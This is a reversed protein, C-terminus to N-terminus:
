DTAGADLSFPSTYPCTVYRGYVQALFAATDPEASDICETPTDSGSMVAVLQRSATDFYCASTWGLSPGHPLYVFLNSGCGSLTPQSADRGTQVAAIAQDLDAPCGGRNSSLPLIPLCYDVMTFRRGDPITFTNRDKGADYSGTGTDIADPTAGVDLFDAVDQSTALDVPVESAALADRADPSSKADPVDSPTSGDDSSQCASLALMGGAFALVFLRPRLMM